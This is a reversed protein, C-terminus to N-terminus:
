GTGPPPRRAAATGCRGARATGAPRALGIAFTIGRRAAASHRSRASRPPRTRRASRTGRRRASRAGRDGAADAAITLRRHCASAGPVRAPRRRPARGRRACAHAPEVRRVHRVAPLAAEQHLELCLVSNQPSRNVWGPMAVVGMVSASMRPGLSANRLCSPSSRAHAACRRSGRAAPAALSGRVSAQM